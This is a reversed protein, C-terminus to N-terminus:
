TANETIGSISCDLVRWFEGSDNVHGQYSNCGIGKCVHVIYMSSITIISTMIYLLTTVAISLIGIYKNRKLMHLLAPKDRM